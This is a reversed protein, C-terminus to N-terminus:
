RLGFRGMLDYLTPRSVGLLEAAKSVNGNVRGLVRIIAQKEAEERIQRLNLMEEGNGNREQLGLDPPTLAAGDAMIVARKICNELERVNGPWPHAEIAALADPRLSLSGRHHEAAFRRVFAHALLAADGQRKRLPPIEVSIEALRYYLDERFRGTTILEKLNQHTACVIRVDVPIEERGGVREIVREQLFRLLKAQLAGPLDGIEDLFLTGRNATEIKGITQKVAGTFAGKEYGFLESELLNEPIAACNIAVFRQARRGSKAHLARALIEKGTGSDGLLLVTADTTAVREITKCVRLMEPDRTIIGGMADPAQALHLRRNEEQLDHLRFAREIILSLLEPEFPKTYFDYAGLGIAKVANARDNQGTLVIVKTDPFLALTEQLTRLGETPEDPAPPLGLDMTAVAPEFRRLQAIASERDGAVVTEYQDFAWRMQKQLAPDDEVILLPRRKETV